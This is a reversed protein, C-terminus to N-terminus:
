ARARRLYRISGDAARLRELEGRLALHELHAIAEGLALLLHFGSLTRRFLVRLSEYASTPETCAGRLQQLHRQHHARLEAARMGLGVFPRGHSPLVLTQPDLTALEELSDLYSGLPDPDPAPELLSVNPSIGPLIQDGSVLVREAPAHLCLHGHAHGDTRLVRWRRGRWLTEDSGRLHHAIRPLGSVVSRYHEGDLSARLPAAEALGHAHLFAEREALQAASAPALLRRMQAETQESSWVPAGTRQQLWAALGAHDPHMHTLVILELARTRLPGELLVQWAARASEHALGTDILVSGREHEILWLNIHDLQMPLPMRLWEIGAAVALLEGARPPELALYQLEAPRSGSPSADPM